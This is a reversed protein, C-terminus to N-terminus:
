IYCPRLNVYGMGDILGDDNRYYFVWHADSEYNLFKFYDPEKDFRLNFGGGPMTFSNYFDLLKRNDEKEAIRMNPVTNIYEM